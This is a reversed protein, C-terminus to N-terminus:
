PKKRLSLTFQAKCTIAPDDFAEAARDGESAQFYLGRKLHNPLGTVSAKRVRELWRKDLSLVEDLAGDAARRRALAQRVGEPDDRILRLDLM